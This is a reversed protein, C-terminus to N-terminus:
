QKKQSILRGCNPCFKFNVKKQAIVGDKICGDNECRQQSVERIMWEPRYAPKEKDNLTDPDNKFGKFLRDEMKLLKAPADNLVVQISVKYVQPHKKCYDIVNNYDPPCSKGRMGRDVDDLFRDVSERLKKGKHLYHKGAFFVKFLVPKTEDTKPYESVLFKNM